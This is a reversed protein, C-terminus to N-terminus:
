KLGLRNRLMQIRDRPLPKTLIDALMDETPCYELAIVKNSLAERVFHHKIDIHKTRTHTIPNHAIAIAGQNDDKMITPESQEYGIEHILKRLWIAKQCSSSLAVYEAEATSLAVTTQRESSWSIAGNSLLFVYGSTSRRTDMDGAWDADSFGILGPDPEVKGYVLSLDITGKLYRLIRKAATLHCERPDSNFKSVMSVAHAIDPRTSISCYLLSGVMSQYLTADCNKSIGDNCQLKVNPDSPTSVPNANSLGFKDLMDNIYKKQHISIRTRDHTQEVSIGLCFHLIGLDKMEFRLGLEHKVRNLDQLREALIVLDDVNVAIIVLSSSDQKMFICPDSSTQQFGLDSLFKTFVTNWCRPSQKLGYLSRNLRCVLHEKGHIEYGPPQRMYIEENLLGNLFATIFDMQHVHLQYQAALALLARISPSKVVLSFTEGYDIGFKQAYGKAVVRVKYREISGDSSCKVKLVWKCGIAKREHPLEVLDWTRNRELSELENDCAEKWLEKQPSSLAEEITLYAVHDIAHDAFEDFCYRVPPKIVRSSRQEASGVKPIPMQNTLTPETIDPLPKQIPVKSNDMGQEFTPETTDRLPKEDDLRLDIDVTMFHGFDRENFKVDRRVVTKRTVESFLRYGKKTESYGVFRMGEAKCDLKKRKQEPIHSYAICGFVKLHSVDPKKGYWLEYPTVNKVSRTPLRNRVYAATNVAESWYSKPLGAHALMSRASDVFTRNMREATGNQEPTYDVTTEHRIGKSKLYKEFEKSTYEGGNDTRLTRIREGFEVNKEAEYEIFKELVQNKSSMFYVICYRTFDDIFTVFFDIIAM